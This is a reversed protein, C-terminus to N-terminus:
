VLLTCPLIDHAKYLVGILIIVTMVLRTTYGDGGDDNDSVVQNDDDDDIDNDIMKFNTNALIIVM